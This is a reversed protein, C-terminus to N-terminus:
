IRVAPVATHRIQFDVSHRADFGLPFLIGIFAQFAYLAIITM